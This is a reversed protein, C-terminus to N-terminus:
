LKGLARDIDHQRFIVKFIQRFNKRRGKAHRRNKEDNGLKGLTFGLLARAHTFQFFKENMKRERPVREKFSNQRSNENIFFTKMGLTQNERM